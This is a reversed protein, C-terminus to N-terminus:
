KEGPRKYSWRKETAKEIDDFFNQAVDLITVEGASSTYRCWVHGGEERSNRDISIKGRIYGEKKFKELLVGCLIADQRCVAAKNMVFIDIPIEKDRSAEYKAVIQEVLANNQKPLAEKVTNFVANLIYNKDIRGNRTAKEKAIEYLGRIEPYKVSDVVIAEREGEGLCVGGDIPSDREIVRRGNYYPIGQKYQIKDILRRKMGVSKNWTTNVMLNM